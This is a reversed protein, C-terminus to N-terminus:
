FHQYRLNKITPYDDIPIANWWHTAAFRFFKQTFAFHVRQSNVFYDSSRTDHSHCCGFQILPSLCFCKVLHYQRFMLFCSQFQILKEVPLWDLQQYHQSVHDFGNDDPCDLKAYSAPVTSFTCSGMCSSFLMPSILSICRITAKDLWCGFLTQSTWHLYYSMKKCVQSVHYTRSLTCDFVVGFNKQRQVSKLTCDNVSISGPMCHHIWVSHIKQTLSPLSELSRASTIM